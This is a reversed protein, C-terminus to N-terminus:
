STGDNGELWSDDSFFHSFLMLVWGMSVALVGAAWHIMSQTTQWTSWMLVGGTCIILGSWFNIFGVWSVQTM